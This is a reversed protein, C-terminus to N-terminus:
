TRLYTHQLHLGTVMDHEDMLSGFIASVMLKDTETGWQRRLSYGVQAVDQTFFSTSPTLSLRVFFELCCADAHLRHCGNATDQEKAGKRQRSSRRKRGDLPM